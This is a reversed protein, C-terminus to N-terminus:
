SSTCLGRSAVTTSQRSAKTDARLFGAYTPFNVLATWRIGSSNRGAQDVTVGYYTWSM